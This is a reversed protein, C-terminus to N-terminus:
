IGYIKRRIGKEVRRLINCNNGLTCKRMINMIRETTRSKDQIQTLCAYENADGAMEKIVDARGGGTHWRLGRTEDIGPIGPSFFSSFRFNYLRSRGAFTTEKLGSAQPGPKPSPSRPWGTYRRIQPWLNWGSQDRWMSHLTSLPGLPNVLGLLCFYSCSAFVSGIRVSRVAGFRLSGKTHCLIANYNVFINGTRM